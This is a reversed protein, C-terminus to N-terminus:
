VTESQSPEIVVDNDFSARCVSGREVLYTSVLKTVKPQDPNAFREILTHVGMSGMWSKHVHVTTLPPEVTQAMEINDFGIVSVDEPVRRDIAGLGEIVGIATEDNCVFLATVEPHIACLRLAADYGDERTLPSSEIFSPLGLQSLMGMYGEKRGQISPPSDPNWGILGIARHGYAILHEVAQRAGGWNDTIISDCALKTSYSDVLVMPIDVRSQILSVTDDLFTGALILGDVQRKTLMVPWNVPRNSQDVEINSFMLSINNANCANAIGLQIQSYFPNVRWAHGVDHKILLGIVKLDTKVGAAMESKIPYGLSMAADIVRGRTEPLVTPRNNLASSATGISVGALDAVDQLTPSSKM